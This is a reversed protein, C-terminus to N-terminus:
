LAPKKEYQKLHTGLIIGFFPLEPAVSFIKHLVAYNGTILILVELLKLLQSYYIKVNMSFNESLM